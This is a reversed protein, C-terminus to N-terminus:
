LMAAGLIGADNGLGARLLRFDAAHRGFARRDLVALAHPELLDLVPAGGGGFLFVRLDLLLAVASLAEGLAAGALQFVEAARPEPAAGRARRALGALPVAEGYREAGLREMALASAIAELCGTAGCGCRREHGTLLHGFEGAMGGPGRWLEGGLVIGGGVGTGLTALLFDPHQAGAGHRAEGLAAVNADNELRVRAGLEREVAAALDRGELFSLNPADLIVRQAADTVGPLGIGVFAPAAGDCVERAAGAIARVCAEFEHPNPVQARRLLRGDRVLGVKASTGGLDVGVRADDVV